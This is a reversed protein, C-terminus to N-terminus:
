CDVDVRPYPLRGALSGSMPGITQPKQRRDLGISAALAEQYRREHIGQEDLYLAEAEALCALEITRGHMMGGLPYKTAALKTVAVSYQAYMDYAADPTPWFHIEFRQGTTGATATKPRIACTSPVTVRSPSSTRQKLLTAESVNQCERGVGSASFYMNGELDIFDDPLDYALKGISYSTGADADLTTDDLTIENDGGRSAVTYQVGGILLSGDAVWSPWTGTASLTVVGDVITVTGTSYAAVTSITTTPSLFSWFYSKGGSIPNLFRQYGGQICTDVRAIQDASWVSAPTATRQCSLLDGVALQFDDYTKSLTSETM